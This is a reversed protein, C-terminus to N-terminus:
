RKQIKLTTQETRIIYVGARLSALPLSLSGEGDTTATVVLRGSTDYIQVPSNPPCNAIQLSEKSFQMDDMAKPVTIGDVLAEDQLTFQLVDAAQYDVTQRSSTLTFVTEGLAVEPHEDLDYRHVEGNRLWVFFRLYPEPVTVRCSAHLGNSTQVMINAIGPSLATVLGDQTVSVAEPNDCFWTTGTKSTSPRLTIDLQESQGMPLTLWKSMIIYKPHEPLVPELTFRDLTDRHIDMTLHDTTFHVIDGEVNFQPKDTSLYGTKVGAKTWVFLKYVPEPVTLECKGVVGNRTTLTVTTHGPLLAIVRGQQDVTAVSPDSSAWEQTLTEANSPVFSYTLEAARGWFLELEAPNLKVATPEPPVTVECTSTKGNDTTVTVHATGSKKAEVKGNVVSVVGPADSSWSVTYLANSPSVTYTLSDQEGVVLHLSTKNLSIGSPRPYVSVNCSASLGNDTSVTIKASGQAKATIEGEDNVSAVNANSSSWSITYVANTPLVDYTLTTVDDIHMQLSTESISISSPAPYVTLDSTGIVGNATKVSISATGEAKATVEGNNSVTAVAHDSSEWTMSLTAAEEPIFSYSLQKKQGAVLEFSEPIISVETPEPPVTVKCTASKGNDTTVKIYAIGPEKAELHGNSVSVVEPADSEWDVTYIAYSPTVQYTLTEKGGVPLRLTSKNLEIRSPVPKYVQVQCTATKGNETTVTINATGVAKGKVAGSSNVSAVTKNDSDWTYTTQANPPYLEPVLTITQGIYIPDPTPLDVDTPDVKEVEIKCYPANAANSIKSYVNVYATGPQKATVYGNDTVSIISSTSSFYPNGYSTYENYTDYYYSLKETQGVYMKIYTPTIHIPNERCYIEWSKTRSYYRTGIKEKYSCSITVTGGFYQTITVDRYFGAGSMSVYGGSASWSPDSPFLSSGIDVEFKKTQGVWLGMQALM